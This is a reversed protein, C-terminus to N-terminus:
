CAICVSRVSGSFCFDGADLHEVKGLGTCNYLSYLNMTLQQTNVDASTTYSKAVTPLNVCHGSAYMGTVNNGACTDSSSYANFQM